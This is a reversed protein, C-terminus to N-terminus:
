QRNFTNRIFLAILKTAKFAVIATYLGGLTGFPVPAHSYGALFLRFILCTMSFGTFDTNAILKKM